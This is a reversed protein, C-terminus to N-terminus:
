FFEIDWFISCPGPACWDSTALKYYKGPQNPNMVFVLPMERQPFQKDMSCKTKQDIDEFYIIEFGIMSTYNATYKDLTWTSIKCWQALHEKKIEDELSTTPDKTFIWIYDWWIESWFNANYIMNQKRQFILTETKESFYPEYLPPTTIKIWLDEYMYTYIYGSVVSEKRWNQKEEESATWSIENKIKSDFEALMTWTWTTIQIEPNLGNSQELTLKNGCGAFFFLGLLSLYILKKM